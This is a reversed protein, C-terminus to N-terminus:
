FWFDDSYIGNCAWQQNVCRHQGWAEQVHSARFGPVPDSKMTGAAVQVRLALCKRGDVVLSRGGLKDLDKAYGMKAGYRKCGGECM